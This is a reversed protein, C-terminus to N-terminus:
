NIRPHSVKSTTPFLKRPLLSRKKSLIDDNIIELDGLRNFELLYHIYDERLSLVITVFPINLCRQLFQAFEQKHHPEPNTFFFEEFQDFIIVTLLNLEDNHELQTVIADISNLNEPNVALKQTIQLQEALLEGLVSVWNVYVRQLVVVVDRTNISKQKLTPILGAQLISSKGVGSQGHIVILKYFPDSIRKVIEEVDLQRGSSALEQTLKQQDSRQYLQPLAPNVTPKRDRLRNAGIFAQFGFEQEIKQREQKLQFAKLYEKQQYYLARLETIIDIYLPPIYEAKTETKAQELIKIATKINGLGQESKALSFLYWGQHYFREWDLNIKDIKSIPTSATLTTNLINLAKEALKKALKPNNKALEVEALFGYARAKRFPYSYTQQLKLSRNAVTELQKWHGLTQLFEGWANIFKATLDPRNITELTDISQQFYACAQECAMQKEIRYRVAYSRWWLGLYYYTLANRVPHNLQQWLELSRQYHNLATETSHDAVRGLVFELNAELEPELRVGQHELAQRANMLEPYVSEGLGLAINDLFIGAGSDLVQQYVSESTQQIFDIFEDPSTEFTTLSTWSEFDPILRIFQCSIETNIWLVIPFPCHKRFEERVLGMSILLQNIDRVSELGWVILADPQQNGLKKRITAYLERVSKDLQLEALNGSFSNRLQQILRERLTERPSDRQSLYNCQALFLRFQGQSLEMGRVLKQLVKTSNSFDSM